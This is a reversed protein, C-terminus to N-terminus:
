HDLLASITVLKIPKGEAFSQAGKHFGCTTVLWAEDAKFHIMTGYLDRVVGPSVYDAQGKCQVVITRGGKKLFLDVGQDGSPSTLEVEFGRRRFLEAIEREFRLGDLSKWYEVHKKKEEELRREEEEEAQRRAQERLRAQHELESLYEQYAEVAKTYHQYMGFNPSHKIAIGHAYRHVKEILTIVALMALSIPVLGLVFTAVGAVLAWSWSFEDAWSLVYLYAIGVLVWLLVSQEGESLGFDKREFYVVESLSLGFDQPRPERSTAEQQVPRRPRTGPPSPGPMDVSSERQQQTGLSVPVSVYTSSSSMKRPTNPAGEEQPVSGWRRAVGPPLECRCVWRPLSCSLCMVGQPDLKRYAKSMRQRRLCNTKNHM